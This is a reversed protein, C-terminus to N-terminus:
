RSEIVFPHRGESDPVGYAMLLAGLTAVEAESAAPSISMDGSLRYGGLVDLELMSRLQLPGNGTDEVFGRWRPAGLTERLVEPRWRFDGLRLRGDLSGVLDLLLIEGTASASGSRALTVEDLDPELTGEWGQAGMREAFASIPVRGRLNRVRTETPDIEIIGHLAGGPVEWELEFRLMLRLLAAPQLNWALRGAETDGLSLDAQGSWLTGSTATLLVGPPAFRGLQSAPLGALLVFAFVVLGLTALALTRRM